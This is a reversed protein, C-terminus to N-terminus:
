HKADSEYKYHNVYPCYKKCILTEQFTTYNSLNTSINLIVQQSWKGQQIKDGIQYESFEYGYGAMNNRLLANTDRTM